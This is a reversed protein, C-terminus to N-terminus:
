PVREESGGAWVKERAARVDVAMHWGIREGEKKRGLVNQNNGRDLRKKGTLVCVRMPNSGM